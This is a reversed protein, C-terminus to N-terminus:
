WVLMQMEFILGNLIYFIVLKEVKFTIFILICSAKLGIHSHM